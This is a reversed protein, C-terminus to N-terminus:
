QHAVTWRGEAMHRLVPKCESTSYQRGCCPYVREGFGRQAAELDIMVVDGPKFQPDTGGLPIM